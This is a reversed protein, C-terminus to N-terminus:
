CCIVALVFRKGSKCVFLNSIPFFGESDIVIGGNQVSHEFKRYCKNPSFHKNKRVNQVNILQLFSTTRDITLTALSYTIASTM